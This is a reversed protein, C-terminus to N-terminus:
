EFVDDRVEHVKNLFLLIKNIEEQKLIWDYVILDYLIGRGTGFMIRIFDFKYEVKFAKIKNQNNGIIVDILKKNAIKLVFSCKKRYEIRRHNFESEDLFYYHLLSLNFLPKNYQKATEYSTILGAEDFLEAVIFITCSKPLDYPPIFNFKYFYIAKDQGSNVPLNLSNVIKEFHTPFISLFVNQTRLEKHQKKINKNKQKELNEVLSPANLSDKMINLIDDVTLTKKIKSENEAQTVRTEIQTLKNEIKKLVDSITTIVNNLNM